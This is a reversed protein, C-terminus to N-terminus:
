YRENTSTTERHTNADTTAASERSPERQSGPIREDGPIVISAVVETLNVDGIHPVRGGYGVDCVYGIRSVDGGDIRGVDVIGILVDGGGRYWGGGEATALLYRM